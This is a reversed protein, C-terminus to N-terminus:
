GDCYLPPQSRHVSQHPRTWLMGRWAVCMVLSLSVKFINTIARPPKAFMIEALCELFHERDDPAFFFALSLASLVKQRSISSSVESAGLIFSRFTDNVTTKKKNQPPPHSSCPMLDPRRCLPPTEDMLTGALGADHDGLAWMFIGTANGRCANIPTLLYMLCHVRVRDWSDARLGGWRDALGDAQRFEHTQRLSMGRVAMAM